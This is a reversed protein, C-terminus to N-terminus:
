ETIDSKNITFKIKDDLLSDQYYFNYSEAEKVDFAIQGKLMDNSMVSGDLQSTINKTLLAYQGKEGNSDKLEFSMISSINLSDEGTNEITLDVLLYFDGDPKSEAYCTGEFEWSCESMIKKVSNIKIKTKNVTATENINFTTKKNGEEDKTLTKEGCGTLNFVLLLSVILIGIKKM